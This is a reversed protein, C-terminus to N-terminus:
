HLVCFVWDEDKCLLVIFNQTEFLCTHRQYVIKSDGKKKKKKQCEQVKM